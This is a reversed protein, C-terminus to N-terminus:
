WEHMATVASWGDGGAKLCGVQSFDTKVRFDADCRGIHIQRALDCAQIEFIKM